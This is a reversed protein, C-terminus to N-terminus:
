FNNKSMKVDKSTINETFLNEFKNKM